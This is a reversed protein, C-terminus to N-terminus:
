GQSLFVFIALPFLESFLKMWSGPGPIFITSRLSEFDVGGQGFNDFLFFLCLNTMGKLRPFVALCGDVPARM